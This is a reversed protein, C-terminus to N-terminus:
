KRSREFLRLYMETFGVRMTVARGANATIRIALTEQEASSSSMVACKASRCSSATFRNCSEMACTDIAASIELERRHPVM